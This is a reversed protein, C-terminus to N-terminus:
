WYTSLTHSSVLELVLLVHLSLPQQTKATIQVLSGLLAINVMLDSLKTNKYLKLMNLHLYTCFLNTQKKAKVDQFKLDMDLSWTEITLVMSLDRLQIRFYFLVCLLCASLLWSSSVSILMSRDITCMKYLDGCIVILKTHDTMGEQEMPQVSILCMIALKRTGCPQRESACCLVRERCHPVAPLQLWKM